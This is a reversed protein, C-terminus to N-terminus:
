SEFHYINVRNLACDPLYIRKQHVHMLYPMWLQGKSSDAGFGSFSCVFQDNQDFVKVARNVLDSIFIYGDDHEISTPLLFNDNDIGYGAQGFSRLWHGDRDMVQIRHNFQDTIYCEGNDSIAIDSPTHFDQEGDGLQGFTDVLGIIGLANLRWRSIRNNGSDAIFIDNSVPDIAIGQPQNLQWPQSGQSGFVTYPVLEKFLPHYQYVTVIGSLFNSVVLLPISPALQGPLPNKTKLAALGLSGPLLPLSASRLSSSELSQSAQLQYNGADVVWLGDDDGKDEQLIMSWWNKQWRQLWEMQWSLGMNLWTPLGSSLGTPQMLNVLQEHFRHQQALGQLMLSQPVFSPLSSSTPFTNSFSSSTQNLPINGAVATSFHLQGVSDREDGLQAKVTPYLSRGNQVQKLNAQHLQLSALIPETVLFSDSDPYETLQIPSFYGELSGQLRGTQSYVAIANAKGGPILVKGQIIAVDRALELGELYPKNNEEFNLGKGQWNCRVVTNFGTNAIYIRGRRDLSLGQPWLLDVPEKYGTITEISYLYDGDDNFIALRSNGADGEYFEDAVCLKGQYYVIGNPGKLAVDPENGFTKVPTVDLGADYSLIHVRQNGIDTVYVWNKDPHALLRFPMNFSCDGDGTSGFVMLLNKLEKDFVLLRNHATDALWVRQYHDICSGVPTNLSLKEHTAAPLDTIPNHDTGLHTQYSIGMLM